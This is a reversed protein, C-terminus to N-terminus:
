EDKSKMNRENRAIRERSERLKVMIEEAKENIRNETKLRNKYKESLKYFGQQLNLQAVTDLLHEQDKPALKAVKKALEAIQASM